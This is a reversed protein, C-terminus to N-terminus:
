RKQKLAKFRDVIEGAMEVPSSGDVILRKWVYLNIANWLLMARSSDTTQLRNLLSSDFMETAMDVLPQFLTGPPAWYVIPFGFSQKPRNLYPEPFGAARLIQRIVYKSERLKISWPISLVHRIVDESAFPYSIIIGQSEALKSWVGMTTFGECLLSIITIQNLLPEAVFPRILQRHSAVVASKDFGFEETLVRKSTYQGLTWLIHDDSDSRRRFDHRFYALRGGRTSGLQAFTKWVSRVGPVQLLSLLSHFKAYKRHADNGFLGDAAEGCFLVDHRGRSLNKFLLYLMVSQLHHVPEEACAIAEVLGRLYEEDSGKYVSHTTKLLHAVSTAYEEERDSRNSFSFSSSVSTISPYQRVALAALLSSDLGGSLLIGSRGSHLAAESIIRELRATVEATCQEATQGAEAGVDGFRWHREATVTGQSMEFTLHQGGILKPIGKLLSGPATVFRYMFFEPLANEDMAIPVGAEKMAAVSTSCALGNKAYSYYQFRSSSISAALEIIRRQADVVVISLLNNGLPASHSCGTALAKIAKTIEEEAPAIVSEGVAVLDDHTWSWGFPSSTKYHVSVGKRSWSTTGPPTKEEHVDRSSGALEAKLFFM